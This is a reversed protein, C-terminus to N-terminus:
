RRTKCEGPSNCDAEKAPTCSGLVAQKFRTVAAAPTDGQHLSKWKSKVSPDLYKLAGWAYLLYAHQKAYSKLVKSVNSGYALGIEVFHDEYREFQFGARRLADEFSSQKDGRVCLVKQGKTHALLKVEAVASLEPAGSLDFEHLAATIPDPNQADEFFLLRIEKNNSQARASEVIAAVSDNIWELGRVKAAIVLIPDRDGAKAVQFFRSKFTKLDFAQHPSVKGLFVLAECDFERAFEVELAKKVPSFFGTVFAAKV